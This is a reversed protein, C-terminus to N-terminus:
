RAQRRHFTSWLWLCTRHFRLAVHMRRPLAEVRQIDEVTFAWAKIDEILKERDPIQLSFTQALQVARGNMVTFDFREHHNRGFVTPAELFQEDRVLGRERYSKRVAAMAVNKKKFPYRRAIPDIILQDFLINMAGDITEALIPTPRSLQVVNEGQEWLSYLWDESIEVADDMANESGAEVFYDLQKGIDDAYSWVASLVGKDDIARARKANGVLRLDWEATEDCGVIAGINISEGRAADPVFRLVSYVYRM